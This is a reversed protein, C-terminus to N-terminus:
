VLARIGFAKEAHLCIRTNSIYSRCLSLSIRVFIPRYPVHESSECPKAISQDVRGVTQVFPSRPDHPVETISIHVHSTLVLLAFYAVDLSTMKSAFNVPASFKWPRICCNYLRRNTRSAASNKGLSKVMRHFGELLAM